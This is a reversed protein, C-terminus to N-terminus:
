SQMEWEKVRDIETRCLAERVRGLRRWTWLHGGFDYVKPRDLGVAALFLPGVPLGKLM